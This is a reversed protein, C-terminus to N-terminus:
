PFCSEQLWNRLTEDATGELADELFARVLMARAKPEPIGRARLYFLQDEDLAGIAAGHSCSVDDAYIELAPKSDVWAKESMLLAQNMQAGDTGDAGRAVYVRGQFVGHGQDDAVTRVLQRSRCDPSQHRIDSTFDAFRGGELVQVGDLHVFAHPGGLRVVSELRALAAGRTIAIAHLTAHSHLEASLHALHFGGEGERHLRAYDLRAHSAVDLHLCPNALCIGQSQQVEVLRLTSGEELHLELREHTSLPASGCAEHLMVLALTGVEMGKAVRLRLVQGCLAKNLNDTFASGDQLAAPAGKPGETGEFGQNLSTDAARVELTVGAPLKTLDEVLHGNALVVQGALGPPLTISGLLASAAELSLAPAQQWPVQAVPLLSTYHWAEQKRTPLAEGLLPAAQGARARFAAMAPMAGELGGKPQTTTEATPGSM